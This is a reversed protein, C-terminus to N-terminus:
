SWQLDAPAFHLERKVTPLAINVFSFDLQLVFQAAVVLGLATGLRQSTQQERGHMHMGKQGRKGSQKRSNTIYRLSPCNTQSGTIQWTIDCILWRSAGAKARLRIAPPVVM